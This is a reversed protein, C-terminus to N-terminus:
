RSYRRLWAALNAADQSTNGAFPVPEVTRSPARVQSAALLALLSFAVVGAAIAAVWTRTLQV